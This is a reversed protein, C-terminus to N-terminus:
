KRSHGNTLLGVRDEPFTGYLVAGYDADGAIIEENFPTCQTSELAVRINENNQAVDIQDDRGNKTAM